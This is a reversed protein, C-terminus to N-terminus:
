EVALTDAVVRMALWNARDDPALGEAFRLVRGRAVDRERAADETRGVAALARVRCLHFRTRSVPMLAVRGALIADTAEIARPADGIALACQALLSLAIARQFLLPGCDDAVKSLAAITERALERDTPSALAASAICNARIWVDLHRWNRNRQEHVLARADIPPDGLVAVTAKGLLWFDASAFGESLMASHADIIARAEALAGLEAILAPVSQLVLQQRGRSGNELVARVGRRQDALARPDDDIAMVWTTFSDRIALWGPPANPSMAMRTMLGLAHRAEDIMAVHILSVGLIALTMLNAFSPPPSVNAARLEEFEAQIDGPFGFHVVAWLRCAKLAAWAPTGRPFEGRQLRDDIRHVEDFRGFAISAYMTAFAIDARLTPDVGDRDVRPAMAVVAAYDGLEELQLIAKYLWQAAASVDNAREFHAGVTAPDCGARAALWQAAARHASTRDDDALMEYAAQRVLSHRFSWEGSADGEDAPSLVLEERRLRDLMSPVGDAGTGAGCVAELAAPEFREGLVSAARLVRRLESPLAALRAQVMAVASGPLSALSHGAGAHRVIEELLFVNGDALEAAQAVVEASADPGLLQRALRESTRKGLPALDIVQANKLTFLAPHQTEGEPWTTVFLLVPSDGLENWASVLLSISSPDAWHLDELVLVLVGGASAGRLWAALAAELLQRMTRADSRADALLTSPEPVDVDALEALFELLTDPSAGPRAGARLLPLARERLFSWREAAPRDGLGFAEKAWSRLVGLAASQAGVDCRAVLMKVDDRAAARAVIERRVRSKGVGPLARLVVARQTGEDLCEDLTSEILRLEKDRGLCPASRGLVTRPEDRHPVFARLVYTDDVQEVAFENGLFAVTNADVQVANEIQSTPKPSRPSLSAARGRLAGAGSETHALALSVRFGPLAASVDLAARAARAVREQVASGQACLILLAGGALPTVEGGWRKAIAEGTRQEATADGEHEPPWALVIAVPQREIRLGAQTTSGAMMTDDLEAPTASIADLADLVAAANPPRRDRDTQLLSAVLDDLAEPVAPQSARVRASDGMMIRALVAGVSDAGFTPQGTLCEYAVCGLAFLDVRADIGKATTLQEPAMYGVTGVIAGTRTLGRTIGERRAIGFDVVTAGAPAGGALIVNAPKLDRHVIGRAHAAALAQAIRRMVALTSAVGLPGRELARSLDPGDLWEMALFPTGGETIGHAVYGVIAPHSLSALVRAEFAFRETMSADFSTVCKLAVTRGTTLDQARFVQGMGGQGVSEGLAFRGSITEGGTM